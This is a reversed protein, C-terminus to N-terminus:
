PPHPALPRLLRRTCRLYNLSSERLSQNAGSQGCLWGRVSSRVVRAPNDATSGSLLGRDRVISQIAQGKVLLARRCKWITEM